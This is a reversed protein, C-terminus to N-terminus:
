TEDQPIEETVSILWEYFDVGKPAHVVGGSEVPPSTIVDYEECYRIFKIMARLEGKLAKQTLKRFTAEFGSIKRQKGGITVSVSADILDTLDIPINKPRGKPNGSQGKEWRTHKPPRSYGVSYDAAPKNQEKRPM